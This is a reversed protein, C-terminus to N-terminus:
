INKMVAGNQVHRPKCHERRGACCDADARNCLPEPATETLILGLAFLAVRM